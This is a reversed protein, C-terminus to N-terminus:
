EQDPKPRTADAPGSKMDMLRVLGLVIVALATAFVGIQWYGLGVCIGIAGTLWMGAGTTLGHVKGRAFVILGAALFAVGSTTAEILRLPDMRIGERHFLSNHSIEITLIAITATALCVLIHTRLGAQQRRSEREMGIAAGLVAALLMRSIIVPYALWTAQDFGQLTAGIQTLM